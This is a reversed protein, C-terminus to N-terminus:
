VRNVLLDGIVGVFDLIRKSWKKLRKRDVLKFGVWKFRKKNGLIVWILM